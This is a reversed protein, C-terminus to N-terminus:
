IQGRVILFTLVAILVVFSYITPLYWVASSSVAILFAFVDFIMFYVAFVFLRELNIRVEGIPPPEEGCAYPVTKGRCKKEGKASVKSGVWYIILAILFSFAFIALLLFLSDNGM